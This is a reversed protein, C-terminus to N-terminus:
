ILYCHLLSQRKQVTFYSFIVTYVSGYLLGDALCELASSVESLEEWGTCNECILEKYRDECVLTM